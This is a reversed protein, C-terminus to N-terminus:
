LAPARHRRRRGSGGTQASGYLFGGQLTKIGGHYCLLDAMRLRFGGRGAVFVRGRGAFLCNKPSHPPYATARGSRDLGASETHALDLGLKEAVEGPWLELSDYIGLLDCVLIVASKDEGGFAIANVYLPDLVGKTFRLPGTFGTGIMKLGLPPTIDLRAFGATYNDM